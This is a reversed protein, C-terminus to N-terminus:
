FVVRTGLFFTPSFFIILLCFFFIDKKNFGEGLEAFISSIEVFIAEKEQPLNHKNQYPFNLIIIVIKANPM